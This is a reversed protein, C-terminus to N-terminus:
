FTDSDRRIVPRRAILLLSGGAPFSIGARIMTREIGLIFELLANLPRNIQFEAWLNETSRKERRSLMMLPLLLSVFSTLREIHFGAAEVKRRLEGRSYRRVHMSHEDVASWLFQHQPVTLLIGGGPRTAKFMESLVLTDDAIHELVDFAGVLDFEEQFPIRCADMQYLDAEPLRERAFFLGERFIESGALRIRGNAARVGSLVFGTGCGVEFFSYADPFYTRLAWLVLRNRARFWFHNAEFQALKAFYERKFGGAAASPDDCFRVLGGERVPRQGCEPCGWEEGEYSHGCALCFKM